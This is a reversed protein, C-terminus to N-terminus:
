PKKHILHPGIADRREFLGSPEVRDTEPRPEDSSAQQAQDIAQAIPNTQVHVGSEVWGQECLRHVANVVQGYSLNLGNDPNAVSPRHALLYILRAVTSDVDFVQGDTQGPKQYFVTLPQDPGACRLMLRNEWLRAFLPTRFGLAPNFIVLRPVRNPAVYVLPKKSFVLDLVFKFRDPEPGDIATRNILPDNIAALSEYAELRVSTDTDDLLTKLLRAGRLSNPMHRLVGAALRRMGAEPLRVIREMPDTVLEDELRAGAELAALAIEGRPHDYCRRIVPLVTKGMAVWAHAIHDAHNSQAVLLDALQQAKTQSFGNTRQVFLHNVLELLEQPRQGYRTPIHLQIHVDDIPVATPQRDVPAAPFRENIRDAILRSRQWSPQHLVLEVTRNATAVGGSLVVAQRQLPHKHQDGAKGDFPNIYMPGSVVALKRSFRMSPNAGGIALDTTWLRGGDLSTTQTEPLCSVLVDFRTGKTAGPPVLGRAVVVSTHDSALLREPSTRPVDLAVSGVGKKRMENILWRRLYAPVEASGTGNLSVVLGYGSVLLPQDGLLRTLSGVSGHLFAPGTFTPLPPTPRPRTLGACGHILVAASLMLGACFVPECRRRGCRNRRGGGVSRGAEPHRSSVSVGERSRSPAPGNGLPVGHDMAETM